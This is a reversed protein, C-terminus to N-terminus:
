HDEWIPLRYALDPVSKSTSRDFIVGLVFM